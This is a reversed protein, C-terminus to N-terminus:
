FFLDKIKKLNKSYIIINQVHISQTMLINKLKMRFKDYSKMMSKLNEKFHKKNISIGFGKCYESMCGSKLYMLPLGVIAGENQHNGGPENISGTIYVHNKM